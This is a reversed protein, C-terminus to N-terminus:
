GRELEVTPVHHARPRPVLSRLSLRPYELRRYVLGKAHDKCFQRLEMAAHRSESDPAPLGLALDLQAMAQDYFGVRALLEGYKTRCIFSGPALRVAEEIEFRADAVRTLRLYAIGLYARAIADGPQAQCYPELIAVAGAADRKALLAAARGVESSSPAEQAAAPQHGRLAAGCGVCFREGAEAREGCHGCFIVAAM